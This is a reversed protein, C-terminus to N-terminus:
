LTGSTWTTQARAYADRLDDDSAYRRRELRRGAVQWAIERGGFPDPTVELRNGDLRARYQDADFADTWGNCAVLSLLDAISLWAYAQLFAPLAAGPMTAECQRFLADRRAMLEAFFPQWDADGDYRRYITLAHQAVLAAEFPTDALLDLARPWVAQRFPAPMTIFDFPHGTVPNVRPAADEAEWGVDHLRTAEVIRAHQPHQPLGDAHWQELLAAALAAHDAQTILVLADGEDRVIVRRSYV